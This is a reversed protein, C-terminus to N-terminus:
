QSATAGPLVPQRVRRAKRAAVIHRAGGFFLGPAENAYERLEDLAGQVINGHAWCFCPVHALVYERLAICHSCTKYIEWTDSYCKWIAAVREYTEGPAIIRRCENCKHQLRAVPTTQNYVDAAEDFDCFCDADM